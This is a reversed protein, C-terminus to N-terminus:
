REKADSNGRVIAAELCVQGSALASEQKVAVTLQGVLDPRSVQDDMDGLRSPRATHMHIKLTCHM